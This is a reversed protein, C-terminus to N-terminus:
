DYFGVRGFSQGYVENEKANGSIVPIDRVSNASKASDIVDESAVLGDSSAMIQM